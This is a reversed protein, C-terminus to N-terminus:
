MTKKKTISHTPNPFVYIIDMDMDDGGDCVRSLFLKVGNVVLLYSLLVSM